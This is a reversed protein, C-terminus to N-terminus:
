YGAARGAVVADERNTVGLKRYIGRVHTKVTNVSLYLQAAIDAISAESSLLRLVERERPSLTVARVSPYLPPDEPAALPALRADSTARSSAFERVEIPVVRRSFLSAQDVEGALSAVVDDAEADERMVSAAAVISEAEFRLQLFGAADAAAAAALMKARAWESNALAVRAGVVRSPLLQQPARAVFQAAEHPRGQILRLVTYTLPVIAAAFGQGDTGPLRMAELTALHHEVADLERHAIMRRFQCRLAFPWLEGAERWSALSFEASSSPLPTELLAEALELERDIGDEVWSGGRPLARGRAIAERAVSPSGFAAHLVALKAHADRSTFGLPGPPAETARLLWAEARTLDGALLATIGLQLWILPLSGWSNELLTTENAGLEDHADVALEHAETVKGQLRLVISLVIKRLPGPVGPADYMGPGPGLPEGRMLRLCMEAVLNGQLADVPAASLLERLEQHPVHFWVIVWDMHDFLALSSWDGTELASRLAVVQAPAADTGRGTGDLEAGADGSSSGGMELTVAIGWM